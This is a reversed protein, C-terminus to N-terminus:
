AKGREYREFLEQGYGYSRSWFSIALDYRRSRQRNLGPWCLDGAIQNSKWVLWFWYRM